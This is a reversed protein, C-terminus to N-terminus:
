WNKTYLETKGDIETDRITYMVMDERGTATVIQISHTGSPHVDITLVIPVFGTHSFIFIVWQLHM